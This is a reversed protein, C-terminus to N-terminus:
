CTPRELEWFLGWIISGAVRDLSRLASVPLPLEVLGVPAGPLVAAASSSLPQQLEWVLLGKQCWSSPYSSGTHRHSQSHARALVDFMLCSALWTTTSGGVPAALWTLASGEVPSVVVFLCVVALHM